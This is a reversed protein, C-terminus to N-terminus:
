DGKRVRQVERLTDTGVAYAVTALFAASYTAWTGGSVPESFGTAQAAILATYGFVVTVTVVSSLYKWRYKETLTGGGDHVEEPEEAESEDPTM